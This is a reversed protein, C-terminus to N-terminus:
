QSIVKFNDLVVYGESYKGNFDELSSRVKLYFKKYTKNTKTFTGLDLYIKSAISKPNFGSLYEGYIKGGADEAQLGIQFPLTSKYDFELYCAGAPLEFYNVSINESFKQPSKLYIAGSNEGSIVTGPNKEIVMATDSGMNKFQLGEEFNIKLRFATANLSSLYRTKPSYSHVKGPNYMLTTTDIRYFPYQFVYSKLGQNYVAAIIKLKSTKSMMVPVVCPLDFVGVPVDDAYVWASPISYTSSGTFSSDPNSFVFPELQLYTPVQEKPNIINCASFSLCILLAAFLFKHM